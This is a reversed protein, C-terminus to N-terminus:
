HLINRKFVLFAKVNIHRKKTQVRHVNLTRETRKMTVCATHTLVTSLFSFDLTHEFHQKYKRNLSIFKLEYTNLHINEM